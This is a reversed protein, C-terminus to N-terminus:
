TSGGTGKTIGLNGGLNQANGTGDLTIGAEESFKGSEETARFGDSNEGKAAQAEKQAEKKAAEGEARGPQNETGAGAGTEAAAAAPKKGETAPSKPAEAANRGNGQQNETLKLGNGTIGGGPGGITLGGITLGGGGGGQQKQAEHRQSGSTVLVDLKQFGPDRRVPNAHYARTSLSGVWLSHPPVAFAEVNSLALFALSIEFSLKM